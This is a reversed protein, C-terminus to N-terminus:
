FLPYISWMGEGDTRLTAVFQISESAAHSVDHLVLEAHFPVWHLPCAQWAYSSLASPLSATPSILM